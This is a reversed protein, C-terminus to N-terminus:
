LPVMWSKMISLGTRPVAPPWRRSRAPSGRAGAPTRLATMLRASSSKSRVCRRAASDCVPRVRTPSPGHWGTPTTGRWRSQGWLRVRRRCPVMRWRRRCLRLRRPDRVGPPIAINPFNWRAVAAVVGGLLDPHNSWSESLERKDRSPILRGKFDWLVEAPKEPDTESPNQFFIVRTQSLPEIVDHSVVKM